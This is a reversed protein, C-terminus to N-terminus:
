CAVELRRNQNEQCNEDNLPPKYLKRLRLLNNAWNDESDFKLMEKYELLVPDDPKKGLVTKSVFDTEDWEWIKNTFYGIWPVFCCHTSRQAAGYQEAFLEVASIEFDWLWKKDYQVMGWLQIDTKTFVNVQVIDFVFCTERCLAM